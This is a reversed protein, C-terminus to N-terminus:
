GAHSAEPAGIADRMPRRAGQLQEFAPAVDDAEDIELVARMLENAEEESYALRANSMFKECIAAESMPNDVGGPEALTEVEYVDGRATRVTVSAPFHEPYCDYQKAEYFVRKALDLVDPDEIAGDTYTALDVRGHVFAAAVSYQMSFRAEYASRPALKGDVPELVMGVANPPVRVTISEIEGAEVATDERIRFASELASHILQCSAYPKFAIRPTEWVEGLDGLQSELEEPTRRLDAYAAYIGFRGELVSAPGTAGHAALRTAVIAGHAALGPHATKATTGDALYEFVGSAMSGALGLSNVATRADLGALRGAAATAGFIGFVPTPHFGRGHVATAVGRGVRVAVENGVVIATLFASGTAKRAQAEAIVAPCVVASVHCIAELHTDDFDLGHCLMGNAFAADAPPVGHKMGIVSCPGRAGAEAVVASAALGAELAYAAIGAGIVDLLHLKAQCAVDSPVAELQLEQAFAVLREAATM